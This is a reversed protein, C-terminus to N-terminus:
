ATPDTAIVTLVSEKILAQPPGGSYLGSTFLLGGWGKKSNKIVRKCANKLSSLVGLSSESVVVRAGM